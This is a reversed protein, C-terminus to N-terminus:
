QPIVCAVFRCVAQSPSAARRNYSGRM